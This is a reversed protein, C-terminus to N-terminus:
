FKYGPSHINIYQQFKVLGIREITCPPDIIEFLYAESGRGGGGGDLSDGSPLEMEGAFPIVDLASAVPPFRIKDGGGRLGGGGDRLACVYRESSPPDGM